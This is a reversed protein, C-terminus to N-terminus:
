EVLVRLFKSFHAAIADITASTHFAPAYTITLALRGGAEIVHASILSNSGEGMVHLEVAGVGATQTHGLNSWIFPVAFLLGLEAYAGRALISRMRFTEGAAIAASLDSSSVAAAEWLREKVPGVHDDASTLTAPLTVHQPVLGAVSSIYDAPLPPQLQLRADVACMARVVVVDDHPAEEDSSQEQRQKRAVEAVAAAFCVFLPGNLKIGRASAQQKLAVFDEIPIVLVTDRVPAAPAGAAPGAQHILMVSPPAEFPPLTVDPAQSAWELFPHSEEEETTACSPTLLRRVLHDMWAVFSRGDLAMHDGLLLLHSSKGAVAHEVFLVHVRVLSDSIRVGAELQRRCVARAISLFDSGEEAQITERSVQIESEMPCLSSSEKNVRVTLYPHVSQVGRLANRLCQESLDVDNDLTVILCLPSNSNNIQLWVLENANLPRSFSRAM